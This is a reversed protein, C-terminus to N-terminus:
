KFLSNTTDVLATYILEAGFICIGIVTAWFVSKKAKTLNDPKEQSMVFLIGGRIYLYIVWLTGIYVIINSIGSVVSQVSVSDLPNNFKGSNSNDATKNNPNQNSPNQDTKNQCFKGGTDKACYNSICEDNNTCTEGNTKKSVIGTPGPLYDAYAREVFPINMSPKGGVARQLVDSGSDVGLALLVTRVIVYAGVVIGTGILLKILRSKAEALAEGSSPNKVIPWFTLFLGIFFVVPLFFKIVYEAFLNAVSFLDSLQCPAENVSNGCNVLSTTTGDNTNAPM